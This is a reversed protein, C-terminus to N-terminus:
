GITASARATLRSKVNTSFAKWLTACLSPLFLAFQRGGVRDLCILRDTPGVTLDAPALPLPDGYGVHTFSLSCL